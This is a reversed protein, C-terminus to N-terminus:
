ENRSILAFLSNVIGFLAYTSFVAVLLAQWLAERGFFLIGLFMLVAFAKSIGYLKEGKGKFDPYHVHSVMLYGVIAMIIPYAIGFGLPDIGLSVFLLTTM